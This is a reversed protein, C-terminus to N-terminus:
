GGRLIGIIDCPKGRYSKEGDNDLTLQLVRTAEGATGQLDSSERLKTPEGLDPREM